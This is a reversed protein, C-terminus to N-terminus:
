RATMFGRTKLVLYRRGNFFTQAEEARRNVKMVVVYTEQHFKRGAELSSKLETVRSALITSSGHIKEEEQIDVWTKVNGGELYGLSTTTTEVVFSAYCELWNFWTQHGYKNRGQCLSEFDKKMMVEETRAIALHNPPAIASPLTHLHSFCM